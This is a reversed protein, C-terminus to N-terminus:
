SQRIHYEAGRRTRQNRESGATSTSIRRGSLPQRSSFYQSDSADSFISDSSSHVSTRHTRIGHMSANAVM